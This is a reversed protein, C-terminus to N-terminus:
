RVGGPPCQGSAAPLRPRAAASRMGYLRGAFTTVLSTFDELLEERGEVIVGVTEAESAADGATYHRGAFFLAAVMMDASLPVAM